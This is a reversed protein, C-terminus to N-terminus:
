KRAACASSARQLTLPRSSLPRRRGPQTQQGICDEPPRAAAFGRLDLMQHQKRSLRPRSKRRLRRRAELSRWPREDANFKDVLRQGGRQGPPLNPYTEM